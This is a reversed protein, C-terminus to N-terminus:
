LAMDRSGTQILMAGLARLVGITWMHSQPPIALTTTACCCRTPNFPQYSTHSTHSPCAVQYIPPCIQSLLQQCWNHPHATNETRILINHRSIQQKSTTRLNIDVMTATCPHLNICGTVCTTYPLCTSIPSQQTYRASLNFSLWCVRMATGHLTTLNWRKPLQCSCLDGLLQM